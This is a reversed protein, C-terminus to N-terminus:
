HAVHVNLMLTPTPPKAGRLCLCHPYDMLSFLHSWSAAKNMGSLVCPCLHLSANMQVIMCPIQGPTTDSVFLAAPLDCTRGLGRRKWRCPAKSVTRTLDCHRCLQAFPFDYRCFAFGLLWCKFCPIQLVQNCLDVSAASGGAPQGVPCSQKCLRLAHLQSWGERQQREGGGGVGARVSGWCQRGEEQWHQNASQQQTINCALTGAAWSHHGRSCSTLVHQLLVKGAATLRLPLVSGM